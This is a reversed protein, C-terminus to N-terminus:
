RGANKFIAITKVPVYGSKLAFEKLCMAHIREKEKDLHFILGERYTRFTERKQKCDNIRKEEKALETLLTEKDQKLQMLQKKKEQLDRNELVQEKTPLKMSALLLAVCFFFDNFLMWLFPSSAFGTNHM